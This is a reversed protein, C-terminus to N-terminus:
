KLRESLIKLTNIDHQILIWFSSNAPYKDRLDILLDDYNEFEKTLKEKEESGSKEIVDTLKGAQFAFRETARQLESLIKDEAVYKLEALRKRLLSEYYPQKLKNSFLFLERGKEWLRKFNYYFSGPNLTTKPLDPHELDKTYILNPPILFLAILFNTMFVISIIKMM